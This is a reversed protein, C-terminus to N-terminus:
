AVRLEVVVDSVRGTAQLRVLRHGEEGHNPVYLCISGVSISAIMLRIARSISSTSLNSRNQAIIILM